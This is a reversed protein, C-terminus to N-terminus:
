RRKKRLGRIVLYGLILIPVFAINFIMLFTSIGEASQRLEGQTARLKRRTEVVQRRFRSVEDKQAASLANTNGGELQTIRSQTEKLQTALKSQELRLQNEAEVQKDALINFARSKPERGRLAIMAPDGSLQDVLNLIFSGNDGITQISQGNGGPQLWVHDSLMDSDAVVVIASNKAPAAGFASPIRGSLRAAIVYRRGSPQFQEILKFPDLNGAFMSSDFEGGLDSTSLIETTTVGDRPLLDLSGATGVNINALGSTALDAKGMGERPISLWPLFYLSETQGPMAIRRAWKGDAVVRDPSMRLGWAELLEPMNSGPLIRSQPQGYETPRSISASESFPDIFLLLRGGRNVFQDITRAQAPNLVGPHAIMMMSIDAPIETFEADLLTIAYNLRLQQYIAYPQSQGQMMALPGGSGFPMPLTTYVAIKPKASRTLQSVLNVLDYELKGQEDPNLFPIVKQTGKSNNAVLGFFITEGTPGPVGRLGATVALDEKDSFPKPKIIEIKIKGDSARAFSRLLDEVQRAYIGLQPIGAAATESYYLQLTVTDQQKAIVSRAGDSLTYLGDETLDIQLRSLLAQSLGTLTMLAAFLLGLKATWHLRKMM